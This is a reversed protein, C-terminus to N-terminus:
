KAPYEPDALCLAAAPGPGLRVRANRWGTPNPQSDTLPEGSRDMPDTLFLRASPRDALSLAAPLSVQGIRQIPWAFGLPPGLGLDCTRRLRPSAM